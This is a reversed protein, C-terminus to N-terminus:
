KSPFVELVTGSRRFDCGAPEVAARLLEDLTANKVQFAVEQNLSIGAEALAKEDIKLELNLKTALERLLPGLPGRARNITFTEARPARSAVAPKAAAKTPSTAITEHSREMEREPSMPLDRPVPVLVLRDASADVQFTLDFQLAVLTLRDILPLPPLDAAAWLDHPIREQGVLQLGASGCLQEFLDRPTSFDPWAMSEAALLKRSLSEPLQRTEEHRLRALPRLRAAASTPGLYVVPGFVSIGIDRGETMKQLVGEFTENQLALDVEQDPDIRRDLLIATRQNHALSQVAKRLPAGQWYARPLTQQLQRPVASASRWAIREESRAAAQLLLVTVLPLLASLNGTSRRSM